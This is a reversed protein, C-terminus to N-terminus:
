SDVRYVYNRRRDSVDFPLFCLCSTFISGLPFLWFSGCKEPFCCKLEQKLDLLLCSSIQTYLMVWNLKITYCINLKKAAYGFPGVPKILLFASELHNPRESSHYTGGKPWMCFAFNQLMLDPLKEGSLRTKPEGRIQLQSAIHSVIKFPGYLWFGFRVGAKSM